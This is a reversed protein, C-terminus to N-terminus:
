TSSTCQHRLEHLDGAGVDLRDNAV